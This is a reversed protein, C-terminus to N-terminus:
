RVASAGFVAVVCIRRHVLHTAFLSLSLTVLELTFSLALNLFWNLNDSACLSFSSVSVFLIFLPLLLLVIPMLLGSLARTHLFSLLLLLLFCNQLHSRSASVSLIHSLSLASLSLMRIKLLSVLFIVFQSPICFFVCTYVFWALPHRLFKLSFFSLVCAFYLWESAHTLLQTSSFDCEEKM